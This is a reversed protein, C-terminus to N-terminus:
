PLSVMVEDLASRATMPIEAPKGYWVLGVVREAHPDIWTLDYFEESRTVAGTTWKVGVGQAWLLLSFNHIVCCTAAYDELDRQEDDSRASTVVLWGPITRWRQYKEEGAAEGKKQTVMTANLRAIAERTEDGIRYFRWPQTLHHNPAWCAAALADHILEAPVPDQAFDHITRRERILKETTALLSPASLTEVASM